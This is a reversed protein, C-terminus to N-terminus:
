QRLPQPRQRRVGHASDVFTQPQHEAESAHCGCAASAIHIFHRFSITPPPGGIRSTLRCHNFQDGQGQHKLVHAYLDGTRESYDDGFLLLVVGREAIRGWLGSRNRIQVPVGQRIANNYKAIRDLAPRV